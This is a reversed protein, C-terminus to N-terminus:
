KNEWEDGDDSYVSTMNELRRERRFRIFATRNGDSVMDYQMAEFECDVGRVIRGNGHEKMFLPIMAYGTDTSIIGCILAITVRGLCPIIRKRTSFSCCRSNDERDFGLSMIRNRLRM